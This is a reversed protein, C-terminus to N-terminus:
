VRTLMFGFEGGCQLVGFQPWAGRNQLACTM